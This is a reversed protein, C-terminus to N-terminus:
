RSASCARHAGYADGRDASTASTFRVDRRCLLAARRFALLARATIRVDAAFETYSRRSGLQPFVLADNGGHRETTRALVQAFTLGDVWPSSM